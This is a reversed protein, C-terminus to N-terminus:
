GLLQELSRIFRDAGVEGHLLRLVLEAIRRCEDGKPLSQVATSLERIVATRSFHGSLRPASEQREQPKGDADRLLKRIEAERQADSLLTLQYAQYVTLRHGILKQVPEPLSLLAKRQSVWGPSRGFLEAIRKSPLGSQEMRAVLAAEELPSYELRHSNEAIQAALEDTGPPLLVAMVSRLSHGEPVLGREAIRTIAKTRRHGYVLRYAGGHRVVGVPQLQVGVALLDSVMRDIQEDGIRSNAGLEIAGPALKLVAQPKM